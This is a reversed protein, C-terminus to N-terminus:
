FLSYKKQPLPTYIVKQSNYMLDYSFYRTTLQQTKKKSNQDHYNLCYKVAQSVKM